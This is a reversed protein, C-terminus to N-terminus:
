AAKAEQQVPADWDIHYEFLWNQSMKGSRTLAKLMVPMLLDRLVRGIPGAAKQNGNRKGQAVVREVRGRRLGEYTAFAAAIDPQDRLCKALVVADEFAMAAGQGSAPSAAHAADGILIMRGNRWTPVTPFDYTNWCPAIEPTARIIEIAPTVDGAFLDLLRARWQEPAIAALEARSLERASPPNAFWWVEGDPHLIYGFFCRKGFIFNLVGPESAVRLGSACGGTNLLGVYRPSPAAPDIIRRTRSQLGDAGILLDGVAQSGDEFRAVVGGSGNEAAVLRKGYEIPVGRRVAEDRLATYLDSRLITQSVLGDPLAVGNPFEALVKGTGSQMTMRPTDFGKSQVLKDLDFPRLAALGNVALSLFSGIGDATRDYAEYVVAEIGAERLAIATVTGAIGGGIVLAKM